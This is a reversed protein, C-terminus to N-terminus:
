ISRRKRPRCETREEPQSTAVKEADPFKYEGHIDFGKEKAASIFDRVQQTAKRDEKLESYYELMSLDITNGSSLPITVLQEDMSKIVFNIGAILSQKHEPIAEYANLAEAATMIGSYTEGLTPFESCENVEFSYCASDEKHEAATVTEDLFKKADLPSFQETTKGNWLREVDGKSNAAYRRPDRDGGESEMILNELFDQLQAFSGFERKENKNRDSVWVTRQACYEMLSWGANKMKEGIHKLINVRETRLSAVNEQSWMTMAKYELNNYSTPVVGKLDAIRKNAADRTSFTDDTLPQLEGYANIYVIRHYDEIDISDVAVLLETARGSEGKQGPNIHKLDDILGYIALLEEPGIMVKVSEMYTQLDDIYEWANQRLSEADVEKRINGIMGMQDYFDNLKDVLAKHESDQTPDARNKNFLLAENWDKGAPPVEVSVSFGREEYKEKLGQIEREPHQPDEGYVAKRGAYDNDLCFSISKVHSYDRLFQELPNDEVMGLVLKNSTYDGTMDMYSMCDIVAEFVKLESSDKNVINVGYNKDNGPVDCQFKRGNFDATGRLGAYRINGEPDYGCYVINHHAADEYILKRHVFENVVEPSLGRSKILYAYLRRFNDNKKPLVMNHEELDNKKQPQVYIDEIADGKFELLQQIAEPVSSANGFELLFDIQSGNTINGRGSWRNWTKDNYIVLSDMEKLIYHRGRRVPTYGMSAALSTLSVEMARDREENTYVIIEKGDNKHYRM